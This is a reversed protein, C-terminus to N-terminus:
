ELPLSPIKEEITVLLKVELQMEDSPVFTLLEHHRLQPFNNSNLQQLIEIEKSLRTISDVSPTSSVKVVVDGWKSWEQLQSGTPLAVFFDSFSCFYVVRQGSAKAVGNIKIGPYHKALM